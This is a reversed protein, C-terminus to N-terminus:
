GRIRSSHKLCHLNFWALVGIALIVIGFALAIPADSIGLMGYRFANVMYLIPNLYSVKQWFGPLVSLPYFVGGLYILPTLVFTPIFAVDDFRKAFLANLFGALSFTTSTLILIGIFVGLHHITVASYLSAVVTVLFGILLGRAIGALVFGSMIVWNSVPAVLMEEISKQFRLSFFSGAVNSYSNTIVAMMILGPTIYEIYSLDGFSSIRSGILNGFIVFYLTMTIVSPLLTQTWIRLFRRVEQRLITKFAIRQSFM